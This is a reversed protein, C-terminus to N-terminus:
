RLNSSHIDVTNMAIPLLLGTKKPLNAIDSHWYTKIEPPLADPLSINDRPAIAIHSLSLISDLDHWTHLAIAQDAGIITVYITETDTCLTQLTDSTYSTKENSEEVRSLQWSSHDTIAKKIADCREDFSSNPIHKHSPKGTPIWLLQNLQLYKTVAKAVALHGEHLPDFAGGYIGVRRSSVSAM